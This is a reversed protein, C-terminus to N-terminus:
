CIKNSNASCDNCAHECQVLKRKSRFNHDFGGCFNTSIQPWSKITTPKYWDDMPSYTGVRCLTEVFDCPRGEWCPNAFPENEIMGWFRFSIDDPSYWRLSQLSKSIMSKCSDDNHDDLCGSYLAAAIQESPCSKQSRSAFSTGGCNQVFELLILVVTNHNINNHHATIRRGQSLRRLSM